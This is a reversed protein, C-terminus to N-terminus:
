KLFRYLWCYDENALFTSFEKYHNETKNNEKEVFKMKKYFEVNGNKREICVAFYDKDNYINLLYHLGLKGFGKREYRHDILMFEISLFNGVNDDNYHREYYIIYGIVKKDLCVFIGKWYPFIIINSCMNNEYYKNWNNFSGKESDSYLWASIDNVYFNNRKSLKYIIAKHVKDAFNINICNMRNIM